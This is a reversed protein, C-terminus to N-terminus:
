DEVRGFRPVLIIWYKRPGISLTQAPNTRRTVTLHDGSSKTITFIINDPNRNLRGGQVIKPDDEPLFFVYDLRLDFASVDHAPSTGTCSLKTIM